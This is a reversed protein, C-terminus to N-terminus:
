TTPGTPPPERGPFPPRRRRLPGASGTVAIVVDRVMRAWNWNKALWRLLHGYCRVRQGFDLSVRRVIKAYEGWLRWYPFVVGRSSPDFWTARLHLAPLANISRGPHDRSFFLPADVRCFRGRLGLEALLARDSGVFSAIAPTSRLVDTRIVGFVDICRHDNLILDAFRAQPQASELHPFRDPCDGLRRDDADVLIIQSSCLVAEPERDLRAICQEVFEPALLDDDAAWKFYEGQADELLLNFNRAAGLNSANRRYHIRPDRRAYSECISQTDDTSANDRILLELDDFTQALLSDLAAALFREGNHTPVGISLRPSNM